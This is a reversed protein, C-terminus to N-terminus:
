AKEIGFEPIFTERLADRRLALVILSSRHLVFLADAQAYNWREDRM